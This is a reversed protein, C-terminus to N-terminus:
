GGRSRRARAGLRLARVRPRPPPRARAGFAATFILGTHFARSRVPKNDFGKSKHFEQDDVTFVFDANCDRCQLTEDVLGGEGGGAAAADRDRSRSRERDGQNKEEYAM